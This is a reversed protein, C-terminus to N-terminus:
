RINLFYYRRIEALKLNFYLIPSVRSIARDAARMARVVCRVPMAKNQLRRIAPSKKKSAV